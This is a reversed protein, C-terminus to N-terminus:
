FSPGASVLCCWRGPEYKGAELGTLLSHKSNSGELKPCNTVNARVSYFPPRFAYVMANDQSM